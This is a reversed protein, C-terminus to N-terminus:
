LFKNTGKTTDEMSATQSAAELCVVADTEEKFARIDDEEKRKQVKCEYRTVGYEFAIDSM